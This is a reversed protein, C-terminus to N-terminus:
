RGSTLARSSSEVSAATLHNAPWQSSLRAVHNANWQVSMRAGHNAPWGQRVYLPAEDGISPHARAAMVQTHHDRKTEYTLRMWLDAHVLAERRCVDFFATLEALDIYKRYPSVAVRQGELGVFNGHADIGGRLHVYPYAAELMDRLPLRPPVQDFPGDFADNRAVSATDVGVLLTRDFDDDRYYVFGTRDGLLLQPHRDSVPRLKEVPAIDDNVLFSFSEFVEDYVLVFPVGSEDLVGTVAVESERLRPADPVHLARDALRFVVEAEDVVVRYVRDDLVTVIVGDDAGFGASRIDRTATDFYGIHIVGRDADLLRVNGSVHRPGLEFAYYYYTETPYVIAYPPFSRVLASLVTRPDDFEAALPTAGAALNRWGARWASWAARLRESAQLAGADIWCDEIDHQNLRLVGSRRSGLPVVVVLVVLM